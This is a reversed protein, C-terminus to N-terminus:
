RTEAMGRCQRTEGVGIHGLLGVQEHALLSLVGPRMTGVGLRHDLAVWPELLGVRRGVRGIVLEQLALGRLEVQGVDGIELGGKRRQELHHEVVAVLEELATVLPDAGHQQPVEHFLDLMATRGQADVVM